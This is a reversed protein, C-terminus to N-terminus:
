IHGVQFLSVQPYTPEVGTVSNSSRHILSWLTPCVKETANLIPSSGNQRGIPAILPPSNASGFASMPKNTDFRVDSTQPACFSTRTQNSLTDTFCEVDFGGKSGSYRVVQSPDWRLWIHVQSPELQELSKECSMALKWTKGPEGVAGGSTYLCVEFESPCTVALM